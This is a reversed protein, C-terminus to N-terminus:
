QKVIGVINWQDVLMADDSIKIGNARAYEMVLVIDGRKCRKVEKGVGDCQAFCVASPSSNAPTADYREVEGEKEDADYDDLFTVAVYGGTPEINM